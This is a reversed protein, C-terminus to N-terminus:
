RGRLVLRDLGIGVLLTKVEEPKAPTLAVEIDTWSGSRFQNTVNFEKTNGGGKSRRGWSVSITAGHFDASTPNGIELKVKFGDLYPTVGKTSVTFAGFNTKAIGYGQGETFVLAKEGELASVRSELDLFDDQLKRVKEALDSDTPNPQTQAQQAGQNCGTLVYGVLCLLAVETFRNM